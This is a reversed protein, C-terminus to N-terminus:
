HFEPLRPFYNHRGSKLIIAYIYVSTEAVYIEHLNLVPKGGRNPDFIFDRFSRHYFMLEQQAADEPVPTNPSTSGVSLAIFAARAL